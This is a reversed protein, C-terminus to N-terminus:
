WGNVFTYLVAVPSYNLVQVDRIVLGDGKLAVLTAACDGGPPIPPTSTMSINTATFSGSPTTSVQCLVVAAEPAPPSGHGAAFAINGIGSMSVVGLLLLSLLFVVTRKMKTVEKRDFIHHLIIAM